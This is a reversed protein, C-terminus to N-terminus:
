MKVRCRYLARETESAGLRSLLMSKPEFSSKGPSVGLPVPKEGRREGARFEVGARRASAASEM